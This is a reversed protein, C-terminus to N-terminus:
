AATINDRLGAIAYLSFLRSVQLVIDVVRTSELGLLSTMFDGQTEQSRVEKAQKQDKFYELRLFAEKDLRLIM